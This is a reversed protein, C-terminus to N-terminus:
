GFISGDFGSVDIDIEVANAEAIAARLESAYKATEETKTMADRKSLTRRGYEKDKERVQASYAEWPSDASASKWMMFARDIGGVIKIAELLSIREGRVEIEAELNYISQITQLQAIQRETKVCNEGTTLPDPKEKADFSFLSNDFEAKLFNRKLELEKLKERIKYGTLKM